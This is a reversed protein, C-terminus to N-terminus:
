WVVRTGAQGGDLARFQLPESLRYIGEALEVVVDANKNAARVARQARALTRFPRAESGDGTDNGLPAVHITVTPVQRRNEPIFAAACYLPWAALLLAWLRNM